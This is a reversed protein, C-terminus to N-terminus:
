MYEGDRYGVRGGERDWGESDEWPVLGSCKDRADLRPQHDAECKIIYMHHVSVCLVSKPSQSYTDKLKMATIMM